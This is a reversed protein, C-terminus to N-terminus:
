PWSAPRPALELVVRRSAHRVTRDARTPGRVSFMGGFADAQRAMSAAEISKAPPEFPSGGSVWCTGAFLMLVTMMAVTAAISLQKM